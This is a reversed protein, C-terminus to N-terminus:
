TCPEPQFCLKGAGSSLIILCNTPERVCCVPCVGVSSYFLRQALLEIVLLRKAQRLVIVVQIFYLVQQLSLNKCLLFTM